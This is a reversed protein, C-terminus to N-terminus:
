SRARATVALVVAASLAVATLVLAWTFTHAFAHAVLALPPRDDTHRAGDLQSQLTVALLTVGISGGLQQLVSITSTARPIEEPHLTTYAAATIPMLSAGIGVGRLLLVVALWAFSTHAGVFALPITAVTCLALGVSAVAGGGLRDTQRGAPRMALAAGLGQPAILLGAVLPSQGRAIQYYLPAILLAGYLAAGAFFIAAAAASFAPRAFLRVDIVSRAGARRGRVVFTTILGLGAVLPLYVIRPDTGGRSRLESLAFVVAAIGPALLVIGLRDLPASTPNRRAAPLLRAALVLALPGIAVNIYFIWRWSAGAVIIGGLVPGLVPVLLMPVGVVAMVRGMRGPGAARAIMGLGVPTILGGGVGQLVRSAILAGISWAAGCLASGGVFVLLAFIWVRRAGFRETAWGALPIVVALTLLYATSVWQVARLSAHLQGAISDVAVNVITTDLLVIALGAVIAAALLWVDRTIADPERM